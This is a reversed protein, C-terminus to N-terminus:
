SVTHEAVRAVGEGRRAREGGDGGAEDVLAGHVTEAVNEFVGGAGIRRRAITQEGDGVNAAVNGLGVDVALAAAVVEVTVQRRKVADLSDVEHATGARGHEARAVESAAIHIVDRLLRLEGAGRRGDRRAEARPQGARTIRIEVSGRLDVGGRRNGVFEGPAETVLRFATVRKEFAGAH